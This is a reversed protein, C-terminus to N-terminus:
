INKALVLWTAVGASLLMVLSFFWCLNERPKLISWAEKSPESSHEALGLELQGRRGDILGQLSFVMSIGLSCSAWTLGVIWSRHWLYQVGVLYFQQAIALMIVDIVVVLNVTTWQRVKSDAIDAVTVQQLLQMKAQDSMLTQDM